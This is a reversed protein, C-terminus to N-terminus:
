NWNFWKPPALSIKAASRRRVMSDRASEVSSRSLVAATTPPRREIPVPVRAGAVRGHRRGIQAARIARLERSEHLVPGRLAAFKAQLGDSAPLREGPRVQEVPLRAEVALVDDIRADPAVGRRGLLGARVDLDGEVAGTRFEQGAHRRGVHLLPHGDDEVAVTSEAGSMWVAMGPPMQKM